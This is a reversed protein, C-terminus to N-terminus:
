DRVKWWSPWSVKEPTRTNTWVERQEDETLSRAGLRGLAAEVIWPQIEWRVRKEDYPFKKIAIGLSRATEEIGMGIIVWRLVFTQDADHQRNARAAEIASLSSRAAASDGALGKQTLQLIFAEAATIRRERGDERVTVMQGLVSDYPIESRRGRPRGKPNGSRGKQFRTRKPPRRYGISDRDLEADEELEHQPASM